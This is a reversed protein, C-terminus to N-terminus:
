QHQMKHNNNNHWLARHLAALALSLPQWTQCHNSHQPEPLDMSHNASVVLYYTTSQLLAGHCVPTLIDNDKSATPTITPVVALQSLQPNGLIVITTATVAAWLFQMSLNYLQKLNPEATTHQPFHYPPM